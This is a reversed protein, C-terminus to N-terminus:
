HKYTQSHSLSDNSQQSSQHHTANTTQAFTNMFIDGSLEAGTRCSWLCIQTDFSHSSSVADLNKLQRKLAPMAAADIRQGGLIVEGPAGHGLVHLTDLGPKNLADALLALADDQPTVLQVQVGEELGQLLVDLQEVSADALLIDVPKPAINMHNNEPSSM